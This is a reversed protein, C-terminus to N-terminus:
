WRARARRYKSYRLWTCVMRHGRWVVGSRCACCIGDWGYPICGCCHSRGDSSPQPSRRFLYWVSGITLGDFVVNSIIIQVSLPAHVTHPDAVHGLWYALSTVLVSVGFSCGLLTLPIELHVPLERSGRLHYIVSATSGIFMVSFASLSSYGVRGANRGHRSRRIVAETYWWMAFVGASTYILAFLGLLPTAKGTIILRIATANGFVLILFLSVADLRVGDPTLAVASGCVISCLATAVVCRGNAHPQRLIAISTRIWALLLLTVVIYRLGSQTWLM